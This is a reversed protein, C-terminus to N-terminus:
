ENKPIKPKLNELQITCYAYNNWKGTFQTRCFENLSTQTKPTVKHKSINEYSVMGETIKVAYLIFDDDIIEKPINKFYFRNDALLHKHHAIVKELMYKTRYHPPILFYFDVNINFVKNCLEQNVYLYPIHIINNPNIDIVDNCMKRNVFKIPIKGINEPNDEVLKNCIEQTLMHIDFGDIKNQTDVIKSSELTIENPKTENTTEDDDVYTFWAMAPTTLPYKNTKLFKIIRNKFMSNSYYNSIIPIAIM